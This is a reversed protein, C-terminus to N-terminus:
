RSATATATEPSVIPHTPLDKAITILTNDAAVRTVSGYAHRLVLRTM